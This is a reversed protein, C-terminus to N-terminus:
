PWRPSATSCSCSRSCCLRPMTHSVTVSLLRTCAIPTKVQISISIALMPTAAHLEASWMANTLMSLSLTAFFAAILGISSYASLTGDVQNTEMLEVSPMTARRNPRIQHSRKMDSETIIEDVSPLHFKQARQRRNIFAQEYQEKTRGRKTSAAMGASLSPIEDEEDEDEESSSEEDAAGAALLDAVDVDLNEVSPQRFRAANNARRAAQAQRRREM